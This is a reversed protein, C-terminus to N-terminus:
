WADLDVRFRTRTDAHAPDTALNHLEWSDAKLDYLEEAPRKHYRRVVAAAAPDSRVKETWSDWYERGDEAAAKDIHTHHEAARDLNGIYKWARTRVARIPYRNMQGDGSHTAFVKDRHSTKEGRLVALFSRGSIERPPVGGAAELCTPLFDVWSVMAESRTGAKVRNPWA